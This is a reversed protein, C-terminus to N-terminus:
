EVKQDGEGLMIAWQGASIYRRTECFFCEKSFLPMRNPFKGVGNEWKLSSFLSWPLIKEEFKVEEGYNV